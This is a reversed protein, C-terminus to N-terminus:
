DKKKRNMFYARYGMVTFSVAILMFASGVLEKHEGLFGIMLWDSKLLVAYVLILFLPVITFIVESREHKLPSRKEGDGLKSIKMQIGLGVTLLTSVAAIWFLTDLHDSIEM